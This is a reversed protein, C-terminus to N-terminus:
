LAFSLLFRLVIVKEVPLSAWQLTDSQYKPALGNITLLGGTPRLELAFNNMYSSISPITFESLGGLGLGLIGSAQLVVAMEGFEHRTVGFQVHDKVRFSGISVIDQGITGDIVGSGYKVQFFCPHRRVQCDNKYTSSVSVNFREHSSQSCEQCDTGQVWLDSSGTDIVLYFLQPPYGISVNCSYQFQGSLTTERLSISKDSNGQSYLVVPHRKLELHLPEGKTKCFSLLLVLQLLSRGM